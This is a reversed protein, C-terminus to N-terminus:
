LDEHPKRRVPMLTTPYQHNLLFNRIVKNLLEPQDKDILHSSGPIIALRSNKIAEYIENIHQISAMDDDAAIVLAPCSITRLEALTMNPETHWIHVIRAIKEDLTHPPDPSFNAYKARAEDTPIWIDPAAFGTDSNYNASILTITEILDPRNIAVLLAIIGGDSTGILHAPTKVVDELYAIAERMQFEFHFSGKQDPSRGHGARDYSYVHFGSVAPRLRGDFGESQSMGGHLLLVPVSSVKSFRPKSESSWIQQGRLSIYSRRYASNGKLFNAVPAIYGLNSSNSLNSM